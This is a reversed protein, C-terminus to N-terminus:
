FVEVWIVHFNVKEYNVSLNFSLIYSPQQWQTESFDIKCIQSNGLFVNSECGGGLLSSILDGADGKELNM